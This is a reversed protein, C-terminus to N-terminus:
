STGHIEPVAQVYRGEEEAKCRLSMLRMLWFSVCRVSGHASVSLCGGLLYLSLLFFYGKTRAVTQEGMSWLVFAM